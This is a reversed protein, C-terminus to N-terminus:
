HLKRQAQHDQHDNTYTNIIRELQILARPNQTLKDQIFSELDKPTRLIETIEQDLKVLLKRVDELASTGRVHHANVRYAIQNVNNGIRLLLLELQQVEKPDPLLFIKELYAHLCKKIFASLGLGYNEAEQELAEAYAKPFTLQITKRKKRYEKKKFRQYARRYARKAEAIEEKSGTELIGSEFLYEKMSTYKM